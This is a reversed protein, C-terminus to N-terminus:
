EWAHDEPIKARSSESSSIVFVDCGVGTKRDCSRQKCKTSKNPGLKLCIKINEKFFLKDANLNENLIIGKCNMCTTYNKTNLQM